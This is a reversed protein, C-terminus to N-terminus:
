LSCLKVALDPHLALSHKTPPLALRPLPVIFEVDVTNDRPKQLTLFVLINLGQM